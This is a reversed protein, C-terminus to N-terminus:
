PRVTLGPNHRMAFRRLPGARRIVAEPDAVTIALVRQSGVQQISVTRVDSWLVRGPTALSSRDQYGKEDIRLLVPNVLKGGIMVVGLGFFAVGLGGMLVGFSDGTNVQWVGAVVFAISGLFYPLLRRRNAHIEVPEM